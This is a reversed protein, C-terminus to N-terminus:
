FQFPNSIQVVRGVTNTSSSFSFWKSLTGWCMLPRVLIRSRTKVAIIYESLNIKWSSYWTQFLQLFFILSRARHRLFIVRNDTLHQWSARAAGMPRYTPYPPLLELVWCLNPLHGLSKERESLNWVGQVLLGTQFTCISSHSHLCFTKSCNTSDKTGSLSRIGKSSSWRSM